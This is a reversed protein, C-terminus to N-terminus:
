RTPSPFRRLVIKTTAGASEADEWGFSTSAPSGGAAVVLHSRVRATGRDVRFDNETGDENNLLFGSSGGLFRARVSSTAADLWAVVYSGDVAPSAGIVVDTQDGPTLVHVPAAQDTPVRRTNEVFRQVFVNADGSKSRDTWAVAFRGDPLAAISPGGQAGDTVANVTQEGGSPTGDTGVIRLRVDGAAEWVCAFGNPLAVVSPRIATGSSSLEQLPGLVGALTSSRGMIRGTTDDQWVIFLGFDAAAIAPHSQLGVESGTNVLISSAGMARLTTDDMIRMRINPPNAGQDDEYTVYVRNAFWTGAPNSQKGVQSTGPFVSPDSPLLFPFKAETPIGIPQLRADLVRVGIDVNAGAVEFLGFLRGTQPGFFMAPASKASAVTIGNQTDDGSLPYETAACKDCQVDADKADCQETLDVVDNGCVAPTVYRKLTLPVEVQAKDLKATACATMFLGGNVDLARAWFAHSKGDQELSLSGCFSGKGTCAAATLEATAVSAAVMDQATGTADNCASGAALVRLEIKTVRDLLAKPAVIAPAIDVHGDAGSACAVATTCACAVVTFLSPSRRRSVM